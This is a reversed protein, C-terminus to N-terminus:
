CFFISSHSNGCTAEPVMQKFLMRFAIEAIPVIPEPLGLTVHLAPCVQAKLWVKPTAAKTEYHMSRPREAPRIRQYCKGTCCRQDKCFPTSGNRSQPTVHHDCLLRMVLTGELPTNANSSRSNIMVTIKLTQFPATGTKCQYASSWRTKPRHHMRPAIDCDEAADSAPSPTDFWSADKTGVNSGLISSTRM